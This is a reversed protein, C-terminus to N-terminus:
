FLIHSLRALESSPLCWLTRSEVVYKPVDQVQFLECFRLQTFM